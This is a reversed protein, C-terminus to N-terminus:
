KNEIKKRIYQHPLFQFTMTDVYPLCMEVQEEREITWVNVFHKKSYRQYKKEKLLVDEVDISDFFRAFRYTYAHEKCILLSQAIGMKKLHLLVRPDFSIILFKSKDKIDKLKEKILKAMLVNNKDVIKLEIVMPVKEDCLSLVEELTPLKEGNSLSYNDKIDKLTLDKIEGEKNTMRLLSHDHSVILEKDKTVHVDFEFAMGNDIAKKFASLSNEPITEDHYGRHCIGSLFRPDIKKLFAERKM